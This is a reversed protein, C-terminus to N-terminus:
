KVTVTLYKTVVMGNNDKVQVRISYKGTQTLMLSYTNKTNYSRLSTYSSANSSKYAFAYKYTGAGTGGAAAGTVTVTKKAAVTTASVKSNNKLAEKVTLTKITYAVTGNADKTQVKISYTGSTPPVFTVNNTTSYGKITTWTKDTTKKYSYHYQYSGAGKTGAAYVSVSQGQTANSRSLSATSALAATVDLAITKVGYHGYYDTIYFKVIYKGTARPTWTWTSANTNLNVDLNTQQVGDKNVVINASTYVGYNTMANSVGYSFKIPANVCYQGSATYATLSDISVDGDRRAVDFAITRVAYKGYYDVLTLKATIGQYGSDAQAKISDLM